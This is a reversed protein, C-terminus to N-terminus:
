LLRERVSDPLKVRPDGKLFDYLLTPLKLLLKFLQKPAGRALEDAIICSATILGTAITVGNVFTDEGSLYFGKLGTRSQVAPDITRYADIGYMSSERHTIQDPLTMPSTLMM